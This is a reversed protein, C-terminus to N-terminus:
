SAARRAGVQDHEPRRQTEAEDIQEVWLRMQERMREKTKAPVEPDAMIALWRRIEPPMSRTDRATTLEEPTPDGGALVAEMSGLQWQLAREFGAYNYDETAREAKEVAIWTGRAVRALRAAQSASLQLEKRRQAVCDALRERDM